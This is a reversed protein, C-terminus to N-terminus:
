GGPGSLTVQVYGTLEARTCAAAPDELVRVTTGQRVDTGAAALVRDVRERADPLPLCQGSLDRLTQLVPGYPGALVREGDTQGAMGQVHVVPGGADDVWAIGCWGAGDARDAWALPDVTWGALGLDDLDTRVLAEVDHASRCRAPPGAVLDTVRRQLELRVPDTRFTAPLPEWDAPVPWDAPVVTIASGTAYGRLAPASGELRVYEAACDAVPDGSTISQYSAATGHDRQFQRLTQDPACLLVSANQAPQHLVAYAAGASGALLAGALAAGVTRRRWRLARRAPADGVHGGGVVRDLLATARAADYPEAVPAPDAARLLVLPDPTM